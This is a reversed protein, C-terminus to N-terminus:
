GTGEAAPPSSSQSARSPPPIPLPGRSAVYEGLMNIAQIKAPDAFRGTTTDQIWADERWSGWLAQATQISEHARQYREQRPAIAQGYNAASAPDSTTVANWGARGHSMVDLGKFQRALNYPENFTRSGTAVLGIRKTERAIAALTMMPSERDVDGQLALFDPLFLFAFKGREAAQAYRVQAEVSTYNAPDVGPARWASGQSGYGNGLHMGLIMQNKPTM